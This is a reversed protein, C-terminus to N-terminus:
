RCCGVWGVCCCLLPWTLVFLAYGKLKVCRDGWFWLDIIIWEVDRIDPFLRLTEEVFTGSLDFGVAVDDPLM